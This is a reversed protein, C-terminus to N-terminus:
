SFLYFGLGLGLGLGWVGFFYRLLCCCGVCILDDLGSRWSWINVLRRWRSIKRRGYLPLVRRSEGIIWRSNGM